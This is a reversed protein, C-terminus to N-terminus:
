ELVNIATEKITVVRTATATTPHREVVFLVEVVENVDFSFADKFTAVAGDTDFTVAVDDATVGTVAAATGFVM